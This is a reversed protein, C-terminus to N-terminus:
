PTAEQERTPGTAAAVPTRRRRDALQKLGGLLGGPFALVVVLLVSGAIIESFGHLTRLSHDLLAFSLAGVVPGWFFQVGGLLSYLIPKASFTWHAVDPTLIQLWPGYLAGVIAASASALAYAALRNGRVDVGLFAAREPDQQIARFTRGIEGHVVRWIVLMLLACVVVLFYYYNDGHALDIRLDGFTLAPRRIGAFGDDRGLVSSYSLILYVIQGLALTLIAFYVGVSRRLAVLGVAVAVAAGFLGAGALMVLPHIEPHFRALVAFTYGGIAFFSAHGFSVLGTQGFMLNWGLGLVMHLLMTGALFVVGKGALQPLALLIALGILGILGDRHLPDIDLIRRM